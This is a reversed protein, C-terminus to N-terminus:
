RQPGFLYDLVSRQEAAPPGDAPPRSSGPPRQKQTTNPAPAQPSRPGGTNARPEPTPRIELPPPLPPASEAPETPV